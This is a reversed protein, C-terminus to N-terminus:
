VCSLPWSIRNKRLYEVPQELEAHTPINPLHRYATTDPPSPLNLLNDYHHDHHWRGSGASDDVTMQTMKSSKSDSNRKVKANERTNSGLKWNRLCVASSDYHHPHRKVVMAM